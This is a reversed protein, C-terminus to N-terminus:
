WMIDYWTCRAIFFFVFLLYVPLSRMSKFSSM